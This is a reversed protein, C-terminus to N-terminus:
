KTDLYRTQYENKKLINRLNKKKKYISLQSVEKVEKKICQSSICPIKKIYLNKKFGANHVVKTRCTQRVFIFLM